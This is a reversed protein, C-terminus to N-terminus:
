PQQDKNALAAIRQRLAVGPSLGAPAIGTINTGCSGCDLRGCGCGCFELDANAILAELEAVREVAAVLAPGDKTLLEMADRCLAKNDAPDPEWGRCECVYADECHSADRCFGHPADEHDSCGVKGEPAEGRTHQRYEVIRLLVAGLRESLSM